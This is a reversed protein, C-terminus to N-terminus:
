KVKYNKGSEKKTGEGENGRNQKVSEFRGDEHDYDMGKKGPNKRHMRQSEAKKATRDDTKAYALDRAAKAKAAKPSLKQKQLPSKTQKIPSFDKGTDEYYQAEGELSNPNNYQQRDVIKNFILDGATNGLFRTEPIKKAERSIDQNTEINKRNHFNNWVSSTSMMEPRKQMKAWNENDTHHGIDYNTRDEKFQKAHFNEHAVVSSPDAWTNSDSGLNMKNSRPDYYSRNMSNDKNEIAIMPSGYKDKAPDEKAKKNDQRLPSQTRLQFAM